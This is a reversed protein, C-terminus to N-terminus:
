NEQSKWKTPKAQGPLGSLKKWGASRRSCPQLKLLWLQRHTHAETELAAAKKAAEADEIAAKQMALAKQELRAKEERLQAIEELLDAEVVMGSEQRGSAQKAQEALKRQKLAPEQAEEKAEEKAQLAIRVQQELAEQQKKFHLKVAELAQRELFAQADGVAISMAQACQKLVDNSPSVQVDDRQRSNEVMPRLTAEANAVQKRRDLVKEHKEIQYHLGDPVFHQGRQKFIHEHRPQPLVSMWGSGHLEIQRCAPCQGATYVM